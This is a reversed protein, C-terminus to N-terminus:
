ADAKKRALLVVVAAAGLLIVFYGWTTVDATAASTGGANGTSNTGGASATTNEEAATTEDESATTESESATTEDESTTTEDEPTTTEDEPTTTEDEPTTTEDEPTTTEDEPTTTEEESTVTIEAEATIENWEDDYTYFVVTYTGPDMTMDDYGSFWEDTEELYIYYYVFNYYEDVAYTADEFTITTTSGDTYTVKLVTGDLDFIDEDQVFVSQGLSVVAIEAVTKAVSVKVEFVGVEYASYLTTRYYYTTGAKLDYKIAFNGNGASDDDYAVVSLTGDEQVEYLYAYTDTYATWTYSDEVLYVNGDEDTEEYWWEETVDYTNNLSYFMYTGDEDPTFSFWESGGEEVIEATEPVDLTLETATISDETLPVVEGVEMSVTVTVYVTEFDETYSELYFIGTYYTIGEQLYFADLGTVEDYGTESDTLYGDEDFYFPIYYMYYDYWAESESQVNLYYWGDAEPTFSYWATEYAELAATYAENLNEIAQVKGSDEISVVEVTKSTDWCENEGDYAVFCVSWTGEALLLSDGYWYSTEGDEIYYYIYNAYSDVAYMGDVVVTETTEDEYTVTVETGTLDFTDLVQTFETASLEGVSIGAVTKAETVQVEFVGVYESYLSVMYYYTVGAELYYKLGFNLDGASDDDEMLFTLTGDENEIFLDAYPDTYSYEADVNNLSRFIYNGTTEPTFSYWFSDEGSQPTVQCTENLVLATVDGLEATTLDHVTIETDTNIEYQFEGDAADYYDFGVTYTGASTITYMYYLYEGEWWSEGDYEYKVETYAFYELYNGYSDYVGYDDALVLDQTSNDDYIVTIETGSLDLLSMTTFEDQSLYTVEVALIQPEQAAYANRTGVTIGILLACAFVFAPLAWAWVPLKRQKM